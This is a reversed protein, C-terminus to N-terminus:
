RDGTFGSVTSNPRDDVPGSAEDFIADPGSMMARSTSGTRDDRAGRTGADDIYVGEGEGATFNIEANNGDGNLTIPESITVPGFDGSTLANVVGGPATDAVATAFDAYRRCRPERHEADSGYNAVWTETPLALAATPAVAM